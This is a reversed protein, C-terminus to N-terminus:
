SLLCVSEPRRAFLTLNGKTLSSAQGHLWINGEGESVKSGLWSKQSFQLSHFILVCFPSPTITRRFPLIRALQHGLGTLTVNFISWRPLPFIRNKESLIKGCTQSSHPQISFKPRHHHLKVTSPDMKMQDFFVLHLAVNAEDFRFSGSPIGPTTLM